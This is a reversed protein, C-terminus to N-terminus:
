PRTAPMGLLRRLDLALYIHGRINVLGLVEDPLTPSARPPRRPRSRRSTSSTLASSGGTSAFRASCDSRWSRLGRVSTVRAHGDSQRGESDLRDHDLKVEFSDYGCEKAKIENAVGSLSTLALMPTEIGRRRAERAFEWGDMVPMEIDSVILDFQSGAALAALGREGNAATEVEYGEATLYRKVM